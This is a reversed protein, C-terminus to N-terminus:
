RKADEFPKRADLRKRSLSGVHSRIVLRYVYRGNERCLSTRVIVGGLTRKVAGALEEVTALKERRVIQAAISWDEFCQVGDSVVPAAHVQTPLTAVLALCAAFRFWKM